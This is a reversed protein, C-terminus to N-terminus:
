YELMIHYNIFSEEKTGPNWNLPINLNKKRSLRLNNYIYSIILMTKMEIVGFQHKLM